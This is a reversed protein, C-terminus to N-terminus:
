GTLLVIGVATCLMALGLRVSKVTKFGFFGTAIGLGHLLMTAMLFGSIYGFQNGGVDLEAAHVYGHCLAFGAVLGLAIATSTHWNRWLNLGFILVSLAVLREISHLELGTFQLSAGFAMLGLFSMPVLWVRKGGLLSAWLGIAFMVLLHDVGLWPHSFGDRFSHSASLGSHALAPSASILLSVGVIFTRISVTKM